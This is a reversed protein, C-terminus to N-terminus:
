AIRDTKSTLHADIVVIQNLRHLGRRQQVVHSFKCHWLMNEVFRAFQRRGLEFDHLSMGANACVDQCRDLKRIWDDGDNTMVM